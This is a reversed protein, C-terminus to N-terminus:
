EHVPPNGTPAPPSPPDEKDLNWSKQNPTSPPANFNVDSPKGLLSRPYRPLFNVVDSTATTPSTSCPKKAAATEELIPRAATAILNLRTPLGPCFTVVYDAGSCTFTSTGDDNAYSYAQPCANKFFKMDTSLKSTDPSAYAGRCSYQDNGFADCASKPAVVVRENSEDIVKLEVLCDENSDAACVTSLCNGRTGGPPAVMMPLSYGDVLSVDYFDLGGAVNLTFKALTAPAAGDGSCAM